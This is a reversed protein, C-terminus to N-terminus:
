LFRAFAPGLVQKGIEKLKATEEPTHGEEACVIDFISPSEERVNLLEEPNGSVAARIAAEGNPCLAMPNDHCQKCVELHAHFVNDPPLRQSM